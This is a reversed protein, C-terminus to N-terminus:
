FGRTRRGAFGAATRGGSRRRRRTANKAPPARFPFPTMVVRTNQGRDEQGVYLAVGQRTGAILSHERTYAPKDLLAQGM